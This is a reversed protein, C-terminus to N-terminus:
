GPLEPNPEGRFTWYLLVLSPALIIIGIVLVTFYARLTAPPAAAAALTLQGIILDPYMAAAFGSITFTVTGAAAIQALLFRCRLLLIDTTIGFIVALVVFLTARSAILRGAFLPADAMAVPIAVTTLIGLVLGHTKWYIVERAMDVAKFTTFGAVLLFMAMVLWQQWRFAKM